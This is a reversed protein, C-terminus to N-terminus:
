RPQRHVGPHRLPSLSIGSQLVKDVLDIRAVSPSGTPREQEPKLGSFDYEFEITLNRPRPNEVNPTLGPAEISATILVPRPLSLVYLTGIAVGAVLLLLLLLWGWFKKPREKRCRGLAAVWPPASWTFSGVLHGIFIGFRSM